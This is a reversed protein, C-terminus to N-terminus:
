VITFQIDAPMHGQRMVGIKNFEIVKKFDTDWLFLENEEQGKKIREVIEQQNVQCSEERNSVFYLIPEPFYGNVMKDIVDEKTDDGVGCYIWESWHVAVATRKRAAATQSRQKNHKCLKREAVAGALRRNADRKEPQANAEDHNGGTRRIRM